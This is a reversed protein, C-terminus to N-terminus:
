VLGVVLPGFGASELRLVPAFKRGAPDCGVFGHQGNAVNTGLYRGTRLTAV